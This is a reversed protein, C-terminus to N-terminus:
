GAAKDNHEKIARSWAATYEVGEKVLEEARKAIPNELQTKPSEVGAAKDSQVVQRLTPALPATQEIPYLARFSDPNSRALSLAADRKDESIRGAKILADVEAKTDRELREAMEQEAKVARVEQETARKEAQDLKLTLEDLKARSDTFARVAGEITAAGTISAIEPPLAAVKTEKNDSMENTEQPMAATDGCCAARFERALANENSGVPVVSVEVLQARDVILIEGGDRDEFHYERARFGVSAARIIRDRMQEFVMDAQPNVGARSFVFDSVLRDGDVRTRTTGLVDEPRPAEWPSSGKHAWLLVPNKEYRTLDWGDPDIVSDHGDLSADSVVVGRIVREKEDVADARIEITTIRRTTIEKMAKADEEWV